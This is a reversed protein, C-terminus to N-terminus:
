TRNDGPEETVVFWVVFAVEHAFGRQPPQGELPETIKDHQVEAEFNDARGAAAVTGDVGVSHCWWCCLACNSRGPYVSM